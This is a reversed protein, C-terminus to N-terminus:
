QTPESPNPTAALARGNRPKLLFLPAQAAYASFFILVTMRSGRAQMSLVMAVVPLLIPLTWFRSRGLDALRKGIVIPWLVVNLAVPLLWIWFEFSDHFIWGRAFQAIALPFWTVGEFLALKNTRGKGGRLLDRFSM